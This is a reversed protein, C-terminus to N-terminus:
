LAKVASQRTSVNISMMNAQVYKHYDVIEKRVAWTGVHRVKALGEVPMGRVDFDTAEADAARVKEAVAKAVQKYTELM